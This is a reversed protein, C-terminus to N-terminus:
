KSVGPQSAAAQKLLEPHLNTLYDDLQKAVWDHMPRTFHGNAYFNKENDAPSFAARSKQDLDLVCVGMQKASDQLLKTETDNISGSPTRLIMLRCHDAACATNLAKLVSDMIYWYAQCYKARVAQVETQSNAQTQLQAQPQSQLQAQPQTPDITPTQTPAKTQALAGPKSPPTSASKPPAALTQAITSTVGWIRSNRRLWATNRMRQGAKSIFFSKVCSNDYVPKGDPGPFFVPRVSMINTTPEPLLKSIEEVRFGLIVLDPAFKRALSQYRLYDQAVSYNAVGFNLIEVKRGLKQSLTRALINMYNDQRAVQASEVYSDGLVAIRLVGPPKVLPVEDNQMGLSNYKFRGYGERKQTMIKNAMPKYGVTIDPEVYENEGVGALFFALELLALCAVLYVAGQVVPPLLKPRKVQASKETQPPTLVATV